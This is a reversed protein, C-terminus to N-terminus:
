EDRWSDSFPLPPLRVVVDVMKLWFGGQGRESNGFVIAGELGVYSWHSPDPAAYYLRGIAATLIKDTSNSAHKKILAKEASTLSTTSPM